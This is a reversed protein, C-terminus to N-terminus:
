MASSFMWYTKSFVCYLTRLFEENRQPVMTSDNTECGVMESLM